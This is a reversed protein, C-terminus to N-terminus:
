RRPLPTHLNLGTSGRSLNPHAVLKQYHQGKAPVLGPREGIEQGVVQVQISM